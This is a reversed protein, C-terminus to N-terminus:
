ASQLEETPSTDRERNEKGYPLTDLASTTLPESEAIPGSQGDRKWVVKSGQFEAVQASPATRFRM